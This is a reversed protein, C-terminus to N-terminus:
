FLNLDSEFTREKIKIKLFTVNKKGPGPDARGVGVAGGAAAPGVLPHPWTEEASVGGPGRGPDSNKQQGQSGAGSFLFFMSPHLLLLGLPLSIPDEDNAM